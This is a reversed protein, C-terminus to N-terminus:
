FIFYLKSLHIAAHVNRSIGSMNGVLVFEDAEGSAGGVLGGLDGVSAGVM